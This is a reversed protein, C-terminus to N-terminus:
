ARAQQGQSPRNLNGSARNRGNDGGYGRNGNNSGQNRFNGRYSNERSEPGRSQYGGRGEYQGGRNVNNNFTQRGNFNGQNNYGGYRSNDNNLRFNVNNRPNGSFPNGGNRPQNPCFARVHGQQGCGYCTFDDGMRRGPTHDRLNRNSAEFPGRRPGNDSPVGSFRARGQNDAANMNQGGRNQLCFQNTVHGAVNCERCFIKALRMPCDQIEHGSKECFGCKAESVALIRSNWCQGEDHGYARCVSCKKFRPCGEILHGAAGCFGCIIGSENHPEEKVSVKKGVRRKGDVVDLLKQFDTTGQERCERRVDPDGIKDMFAEIAMLRLEEILVDAKARQWTENIVAVGEALLQGIRFGFSSLTEGRRKTGHEIDHRIDTLARRVTFAKKLAEALAGLNAFNRDKFREYANGTLRAIVEEVAVTQPTDNLRASILNCGRIVRELKANGDSGEEGSFNPIHTRVLDLLEGQTPAMEGQIEISSGLPSDPGLPGLPRVSSVSGLLNASSRLIPSDRNLEPGLDSEVSRHVRKKRLVKVREFYSVNVYIPESEIGSPLRKSSGEPESEEESWESSCASTWTVAEEEEDAVSIKDDVEAGKIGKESLELERETDPEFFAFKHPQLEQQLSLRNRRENNALGSESLRLNSATSDASRERLLETRRLWKEEFAIFSETNWNFTSAVPHGLNDVAWYLPDDQQGLWDQVTSEQVASEESINCTASNQVFTQKDLESVPPLIHQDKVISDLEITLQKIRDRLDEVQRELLESIKKQAEAEEIEKQIQRNNEENEERLKLLEARQRTREDLLDQVEKEATELCKSQFKLDVRYQQCKQTLGEKAIRLAELEEGQESCVDLIKELLFDVEERISWRNNEFLTHNILAHFEKNGNLQKLLSKVKSRLGIFDRKYEAIQNRLEGIECFSKEFSKELDAM